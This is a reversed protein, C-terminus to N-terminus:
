TDIQLTRNKLDNELVAAVTLGGSRDRSVRVRVDVSSTDENWKKLNKKSLDTRM